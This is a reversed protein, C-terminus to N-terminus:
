VEKEELIEKANLVVIQVKENLNLFQARGTDLCVVSTKGAPIEVKQAPSLDAGIPSALGDVDIKMFVYDSEPIKFTTKVSIKNLLEEQREKLQIKM